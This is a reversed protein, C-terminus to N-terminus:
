AGVFVGKKVWNGTLNDCFHCCITKLLNIQINFCVKISDSINLCDQTFSVKVFNLTFTYIMDHDFDFTCLSYSLL